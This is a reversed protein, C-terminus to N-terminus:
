DHLKPDFSAKIIQPRMVISELIELKGCSVCGSLRRPIFITQPGALSTKVVPGLLSLKCAQRYVWVESAGATRKQM